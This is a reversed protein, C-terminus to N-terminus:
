HCILLLSAFGVLMEPTFYGRFAAYALGGFLGLLAVGLAWRYIPPMVLPTGDSLAVELSDDRPVSNM